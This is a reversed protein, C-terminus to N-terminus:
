ETGLGAPRGDTIDYHTTPPGPVPLVDGQAPPEVVTSVVSVKLSQLEPANRDVPEGDAMAVRWHLNKRLYPVVTDPELNPLEGSVVLANLARWIPVTGTIIISRDYDGM